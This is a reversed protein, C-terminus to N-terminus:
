NAPIGQKVVAPQGSEEAIQQKLGHALEQAVIIEPIESMIKFPRRSNIDKRTPLIRMTRGVIVTRDFQEGAVLLDGIVVKRLVRNGWYNRAAYVLERLKKFNKPIYAHFGLPYHLPNRKPAPTYYTEALNYETSRYIYGTLGIKGFRRDWTVTGKFPTFIKYAVITPELKREERSFVYTVRDMCM